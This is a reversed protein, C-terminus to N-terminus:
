PAPHQGPEKACYLAHIAAVTENALGAKAIPSVFDSGFGPGPPIPALDPMAAVVGPAGGACSTHGQHAAAPTIAGIAIVAGIVAATALRKM